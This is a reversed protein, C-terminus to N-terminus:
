KSTVDFTFENPGGKTVDAELKSESNWKAPIYNEQSAPIITDGMKTEKGEKYARVEVRAKGIKAKGEFAGNNVDLTDPVEGPLSFSVKGAEMPKGDLKVTGKVTAQAVQPPGSTCGIVVLCGLSVLVPGFRPPM